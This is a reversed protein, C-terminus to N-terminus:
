MLLRRGGCLSSEVRDEEKNKEVETVIFSPSSEVGDEKNYLLPRPFRRRGHPSSEVGDEEENKM